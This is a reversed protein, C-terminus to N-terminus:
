VFNTQNEGNYRKVLDQYAESSLREEFLIKIDNFIEPKIWYPIDKLLTENDVLHEYFAVAVANYIDPATQKQRWCWESFEYIKGLAEKNQNVHAEEAIPLLDFFIDYITPTLNEDEIWNKHEPFLELAYRKWASM